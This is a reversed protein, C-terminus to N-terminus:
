AHWLSYQVPEMLELVDADYEEGAVPERYKNSIGVAADLAAVVDAALDLSAQKATKSDTKKGWCEFVFISQTIGAYGQLTMIPNRRVCRYAVLPPLTGEAVEGVPFVNGGAVTALATVVDSEISM